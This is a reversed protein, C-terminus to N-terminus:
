TSRSPVTTVGVNRYLMQGQALVAPVYEERGCDTSVNGRSAGTWYMRCACLLVL